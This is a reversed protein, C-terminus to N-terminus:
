GGATATVPTMMSALMDEIEQEETEDISEPEGQEPLPPIELNLPSVDLQSAMEASPEVEGASGVSPLEAEASAMDPPAAVNPLGPVPWSDSGGDGTDPMASDFDSESLVSEPASEPLEEMPPEVLTPEPVMPEAEDPVEAVSEEVATEEAARSDVAPIPEDPLYEEASPESSPFAEPPLGDVSPAAPIPDAVPSVPPVSASEAAPALFVAKAQDALGMRQATEFFQSVAQFAAGFVATMTECRQLNEEQGAVLQESEVKSEGILTQIRNLSQQTLEIDQKVSASEEAIGTLQQAFGAVKRDLDAIRQTLPAMKPQIAAVEKEIAALKEVVSNM